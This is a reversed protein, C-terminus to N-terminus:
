PWGVIRGPCCTWTLLSAPGLNPASIGPGLLSTQATAQDFAQGNSAAGPQPRLPPRRGHEQRRRALGKRLREPAEVYEVSAASLSYYGVVREGVTAVYTQAAGASQNGLAYRKLYTNLPEAGCDFADVVHTKALKAIQPKTRPDFTM